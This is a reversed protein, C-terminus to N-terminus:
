PLPVSFFIKFLVYCALTIGISLAVAKWLPYNRVFTIFMLLTGAVIFGVHNLLLLFVLCSAFIAGVNALERRGPFYEGVRFVQSTCSQWIYALAVVISIACLWRPYMGPGAGLRSKYSLGFSMTFLLVSFALFALGVWLGANQRKVWGAVGKHHGSTAAETSGM